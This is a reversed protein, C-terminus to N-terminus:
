NFGNCRFIQNRGVCLKLNDSWFLKPLTLSDSKRQQEQCWMCLLSESLCKRELLCIQQGWGGHQQLLSATFWSKFVVIYWSRGGRSAPFPPSCTWPSLSTSLESECFLEHHGTLALPGQPRNCLESARSTLLHSLWMCAWPAPNQNNTFASHTHCVALLGLKQLCLCSGWPLSHPYSSWGYWHARHKISM